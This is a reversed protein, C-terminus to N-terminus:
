RPRTSRGGGPTRRRPSSSGGPGTPGSTNGAPPTTTGTGTGPTRPVTPTQGQDPASGFSLCVAITAGPPAILPGATAISGYPMASGCQTDGGDLVSMKFGSAALIAKAADPQQGIISTPIPSGIVADPSPWDWTAGGVTPSLAQAWLGAAYAGYADTGPNAVGPLDSAPASSNQMNILASTAVYNPTMGVFWLAGNYSANTGVVGPATGTKGAVASGNTWYQQFASAATGVGQTDGTLLQVAERAVYPYVVPRPATRAFKVPKGNIDTISRVPIPANYVGDNAIAAYAATLELPSTPINGLLLRVAQRNYVIAQAYTLKGNGSPQDLAKMGLRQAMEVIPQLNCNFLMDALAVFYTNSSKATASQLTEISNYSSESSNVTEEADSCYRAKYEPQPFFEDGQKSPALNRLAYNPKIGLALATLLPFLKWTSAGSATYSTFIPQITKTNDKSNAPLGYQKNSAMALIEGNQPNLVPLVNTMQKTAPFAALIKTETNNQVQPDLTTVINYGGTQLQTNTLIKNNILWSRVYDCFFGVNKITSPTDGCGEHITPPTTTSPIVPTKAYADAQAQTLYKMSVMNQLVDNRRSTAAQLDQFPDYATPARLLGVLLAAQPVKLDQTHVGFYRQAATEIGFSNEGFFAINLYDVLITAKSMHLDNEYYLACRADEMKRDLNQAIAAQQKKVDNGAAYYRIQKVYQMTLTSGGQTNGGSTSVASRLLGRLDVGHHDYFRRDETSILAEQLAKPVQKLTVPTRDQDFLRAIVTKGDRAYVTTRQPAPTPMVDCKTNLFKNSEHGAAWALGGVYPLAALSALLAFGCLVAVLRIFTQGQPRM